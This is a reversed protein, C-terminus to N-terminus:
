YGLDIDWIGFGFGMDLVSYRLKRDLKGCIIYIDTKKKLKEWGDM